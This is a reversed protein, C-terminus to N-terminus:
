LERLSFTRHWRQVSSFVKLRLSASVRCMRTTCGSTSQGPLCRRRPLSQLKRSWREADAHRILAIMGFREKQCTHWSTLSRGSQALAGCSELDDTDAETAPNAGKPSLPSHSQLRTAQVGNRWGCQPEQTKGGLGGGVDNRDRENPQRRDYTTM